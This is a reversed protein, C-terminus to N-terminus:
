GKMLGVPRNPVRQIGQTAMGMLGPLSAVNPQSMNPAQGQSMGLQMAQGLGPINGGSSKSPESQIYKMLRAKETEGMMDFDLGGGELGKSLLYGEFDKDNMKEFEM